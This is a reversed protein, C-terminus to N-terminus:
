DGNFRALTPSKRAILLIDYRLCPIFQVVALYFGRALQGLSARFHWGPLWRGDPLPTNTRSSESTLLELVDFRWEKFIAEVESTTLERYHGFFSSSYFERWSHPHPSRGLAHRLRSQLNAANPVLIVALGGPKLLRYIENMLLHPKPFHELVSYASVLDQSADPLPVKASLLDCNEHYVGFQDFRRLFDATAGMQNDFEAAYENWNDFANVSYGCEALVSPVIGAGAGLDCVKAHSPLRRFYPHLHKLVFRYQNLNRNIGRSVVTPPFTSVVRDLSRCLDEHSLSAGPSLQSSRIVNATHTLERQSQISM